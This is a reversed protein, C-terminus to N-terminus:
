MKWMIFFTLLLLLILHKMQFLFNKPTTKKINFILGRNKQSEEAAALIGESIDIGVLETATNGRKRFKELLRGYGCGVELVKKPQVTELLCLIEGDLDLPPETYSYFSQRKKLGEANKYEHEAIHKQDTLFSM